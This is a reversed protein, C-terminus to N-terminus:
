LICVKWTEKKGEAVTVDKLQGGESKLGLQLKKAALDVFLTGEKGYLVYDKSFGPVAGACAYSSIAGM